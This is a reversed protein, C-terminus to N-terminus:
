KFCTYILVTDIIEAEAGYFYLLSSLMMEPTASGKAQSLRINIPLM